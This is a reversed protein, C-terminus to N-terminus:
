NEFSREDLTINRWSPNVFSVLTVDKQLAGAGIAVCSSINPKVESLACRRSEALYLCSIGRPNVRGDSSRWSPPAGLEEKSFADFGNEGVSCSGTKCQVIRARYYTKGKPYTKVLNPLIKKLEKFFLKGSQNDNNFFFRGGLQEIYVEFDYYTGLTNMDAEEKESMRSKM